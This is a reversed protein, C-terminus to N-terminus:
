LVNLQFKKKVIQVIKNLGWSGRLFNIFYTHIQDPNFNSTNWSSSNQSIIVKLHPYWMQDQLQALSFPFPLNAPAVFHMWVCKWEILSSLQPTNLPYLFLIWYFLSSPSTLSKLMLSQQLWPLVYDPHLFYTKRSINRRRSPPSKFINLHQCFFLWNFPLIQLHVGSGLSYRLKSQLFCM